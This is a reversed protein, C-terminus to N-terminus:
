KYKRKIFDWCKNIVKLMRKDIFENYRLILIPIKMGIYDRLVRWIIFIFYKFHKLYKLVVSYDRSAFKLCHILDKEFMFSVNDFFISRAAARKGYKEDYKKLKKSNKEQMYLHKNKYIYTEWEFFIIGVYLFFYKFFITFFMDINFFIFM